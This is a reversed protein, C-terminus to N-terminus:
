NLLVTLWPAQPHALALARALWEREGYTLKSVSGAFDFEDKPRPDKAKFLLVAHPRLYPIGGKSCGLMERRPAAIRHDRRYVWQWENGPDTMVDLRWKAAVPDLVWFQHASVAEGPRVQTLRGRSAAYFVHDSLCDAVAGLADSSVAIEIDGHPRSPRDRWLDL